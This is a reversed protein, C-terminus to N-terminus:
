DSEALMRIVDSKERRGATGAPKVNDAVSALLADRGDAQYSAHEVYDESM